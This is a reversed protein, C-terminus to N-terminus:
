HPMESAEINFGTHYNSTAVTPWWGSALLIDVYIHYNSVAKLQSFINVYNGCQRVVECRVLVFKAQSWGVEMILFNSLLEQLM